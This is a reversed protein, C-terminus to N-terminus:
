SNGGREKDYKSKLDRYHSEADDSVQKAQEREKEHKEVKNKYNAGALDSEAKQRKGRERALLVGFILVLIALAESFYGKVKELFKTM